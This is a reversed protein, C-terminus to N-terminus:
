RRPDEELLEDIGEKPPPLLLFPALWSVEPTEPVGEFAISGGM